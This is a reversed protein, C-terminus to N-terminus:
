TSHHIIFQFPNLLFSYSDLQPVIGSNAELFELFDLLVTTLIALNSILAELILSLLKGSSWNRETSIIYCLRFKMNMLIIVFCM